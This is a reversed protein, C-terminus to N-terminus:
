KSYPRRLSLTSPVFVPFHEVESLHKHLSVDAGVANGVNMGLLIESKLVKVGVTSGVVNGVTCGVVTVGVGLGVGEGVGEGVSKGVICISGAPSDTRSLRQLLSIPM